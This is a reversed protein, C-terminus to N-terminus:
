WLIFDDLPHVECIIKVIGASVLPQPEGEGPFPWGDKKREDSYGMGRLGRAAIWNRAIFVDTRRRGRM